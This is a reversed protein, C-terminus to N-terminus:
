TVQNPYTQFQGRANMPKYVKKSVFLHEEQMRALGYAAHMNSPNLMRVMLHIEDKLGSLFCSLKYGEDLGRLQNALAEFQGKYEEVTSTQRLKIMSEMPYDYTHTGFRMLM